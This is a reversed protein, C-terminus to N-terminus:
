DEENMMDEWSTYDKLSEPNEEAEVISNITEETLNLSELFMRKDSKVKKFKM